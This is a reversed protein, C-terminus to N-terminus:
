AEERQITGSSVAGPAEPLSLRELYAKLTIGQDLAAQKFRQWALQSIRVTRDAM